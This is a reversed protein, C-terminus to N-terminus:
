VKNTPSLGNGSELESNVKNELDSFCSAKITKNSDLAFIRAILLVLYIM